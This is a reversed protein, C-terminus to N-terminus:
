AKSGRRGPRMMRSVLLDRFDDKLWAGHDLGDVNEDCVIRSGIEEEELPGEGPGAQPVFEVMNRAALNRQRVEEAVGREGIALDAWKRVQENQVEFHGFDRAKIDKPPQADPGVEFQGHYHKGTQIERLVSM